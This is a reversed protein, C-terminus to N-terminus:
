PELDLFFESHGDIEFHEVVLEVSGSESTEFAAEDREPGHWTWNELVVTGNVQIRVGDDSRTVLKWRGAPLPVVARAIM